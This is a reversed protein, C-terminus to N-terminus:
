TAGSTVLSLVQQMAPQMQQPLFTAIIRGADEWAAPALVSLYTSRVAQTALHDRLQGYEDRDESAIIGISRAAIAGTRTLDLEALEVRMRAGIALGLVGDHEPAESSHRPPPYENALFERHLREVAALYSAGDVVPDWLVLAEIDTRRKSALMALSAGIRMGVLSVKAIGATDKLEDIASGVDSTWQRLDCAEADGSSDGCGSYDFRLVHYGSKSLTTALSRLLRHARVYEHGVPACLVVGTDRVPRTAPPHYIGFLPRSSSGFYFPTM